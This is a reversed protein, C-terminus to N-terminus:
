VLFSLVSCGLIQSFVDLRETTIKTEGLELRSVTSKTVGMKEAVDDMTMGKAQRAKRIRDGIAIRDLM